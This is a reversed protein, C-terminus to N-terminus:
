IYVINISYFVIFLRVLSREPNRPNNKDESFLTAKLKIFVDALELNKGDIIGTEYIFDTFSQQSISWVEGTPNQAAYYKYTEKYMKYVKYLQQKINEIEEEKKIVQPIKSCAWDFEFCKKLM